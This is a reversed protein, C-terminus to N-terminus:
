FLSQPKWAVLPMYLTMSLPWQSQWVWGENNVTYKHQDIQAHLIHILLQLAKGDPVPRMKLEFFIIHIFTWQITPIKQYASQKQPM